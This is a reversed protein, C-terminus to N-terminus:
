PRAAGILGYSFSPDLSIRTGSHSAAIITQSGYPGSGVYMTVHDVANDGDLNFYFLLDGPQLAKLSVHPLAEYQAAATRPISVGAQAWAWQTLGSCDFGVGPSEGGWLYPVGLQTEAAGLARMGAANGRAVGAILGTFGRNAANAGASGGLQGAVGSSGSAGAADNRRAAAQAAAIAAQLVLSRLRASMSAVLANTHVAIAHNQAVLSAAQATAAAIESRQARLNRQDAVLLREQRNYRAEVAAIDGIVTQQYISEAQAQTSNQTFLSLGKADGSAGYIYALVADGRLLRGTLRAENHVRNIRDHMRRIRHDLNVLRAQIADFNQSLADSRRQQDALTAELRQVQVRLSTISPPAAAAVTLSTALVVGCLGSVM